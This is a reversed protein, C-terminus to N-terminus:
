GKSFPLAVPQQCVLGLLHLLLSRQLLAQSVLTHSPTLQLCIQLGQPMLQIAQSLLLADPLLHYLM